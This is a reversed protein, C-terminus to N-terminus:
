KDKTLAWLWKDPLFTHQDRVTLEKTEDTSERVRIDFRVLVRNGDRKRRFDHSVTASREVTINCNSSVISPMLM